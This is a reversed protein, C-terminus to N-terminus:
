LVISYRPVNRSARCGLNEQISQCVIAAFAGQNVSVGGGRHIIEGTKFDYQKFAGGGGGRNLGGVENSILGRLLMHPVEYTGPGREIVGEEMVILLGGEKAGWFLRLPEGAESLTKIYARVPTKM